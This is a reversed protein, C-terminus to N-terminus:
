PSVPDNVEEMSQSLVEFHQFYERRLFFPYWFVDSPWMDQLPIASIDFWQPRMEETEILEGKTEQGEFIHVEKIAGDALIFEMEGRKQFTLLMLGSEEEVERVLAQEITEGLELKGGYGNWFGVGFGRKKEALLIRDGDRIICLTMVTKM